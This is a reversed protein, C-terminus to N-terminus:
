HTKLIYATALASVLSYSAVGERQGQVKLYADNIETAAEGVISGRYPDYANEYERYEDLTQESFLAQAKIFLAKDNYYLTNSLFNAM